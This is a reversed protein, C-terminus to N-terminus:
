IYQVDSENGDKDILQVWINAHLQKLPNKKAIADEKTSYQGFTGTVTITKKSTKVWKDSYLIAGAWTIDGNYTGLTVTQNSSSPPKTGDTHMMDSPAYDKVGTGEGAASSAFISSFSLICMCLFLVLSLVRKM